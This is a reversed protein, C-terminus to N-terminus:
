SSRATFVSIVHDIDDATLWYGDTYAELMEYVHPETSVHVLNRPLQPENWTGRGELNFADVDNPNLKSSADTTGAKDKKAGRARQSGDTM